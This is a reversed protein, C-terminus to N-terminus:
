DRGFNIGGEYATEILPADETLPEAGTPKLRQAVAFRANNPDSWDVADGDLPAERRIDRKKAWNSKFHDRVISHVVTQLWPLIKEEGTAGIQPAYTGIRAAIGHWVTSEIDDFNACPQGLTYPLLEAHIRKRVFRRHQEFM